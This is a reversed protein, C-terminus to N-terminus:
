QAAPAPPYIRPRVKWDRQLAGTARLRRCRARLSEVCSERVYITRSDVHRHEPSTARLVADDKVRINYHLTADVVAVDSTVLTIQLGFEEENLLWVTESGEAVTVELNASVQFGERRALALYRYPHDSASTDEGDDVVRPPTHRRNKTPGPSEVAAARAPPAPQVM